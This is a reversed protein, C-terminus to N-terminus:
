RSSPRSSLLDEMKAAIGAAADVRVDDMLKAYIKTTQTNKHNLLESILSMDYGSSMGVTAFTRRWDRAWLDECGAEKRVAQWFKRPLSIGTVTGNATKPLRKLVAMAQPPLVVVEDGTKGEFSMVGFTKDDKTHETIQKWTLREISRPRAGSFMLLYLFAVQHPHKEEERRLIEGIKSIEATTAFRRRKREPFPKVLACPNTHQPKGLREEAYNFMTSLVAMARNGSYPEEAYGDHWVRVDEPTVESMKMSGFTPKLHKKYLREVEKKWGSKEFKAKNWHNKIASDHLDDVTMEGRAAINGGSPDKGGAVEGLWELAIERAKSLTITGFDGIKPRREKGQKTRYYLYFVKRGSDFTRLHLGRVSGKQGKDWLTGTKAALISANNM